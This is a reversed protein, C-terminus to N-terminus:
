EQESSSAGMLSSDASRTDRRRQSSACWCTSCSARGWTTSLARAWASSAATSDTLEEPVLDSITFLFTMVILRKTGSAWVDSYYHGGGAWVGGGGGGGGELRVRFLGRVTFCVWGPELSADVLVGGRCDLPMVIRSGTGGIARFTADVEWAVGVHCGENISSPLGRGEVVLTRTHSFPSPPRTACLKTCPRRKSSSTWVKSSPISSNTPLRSYHCVM